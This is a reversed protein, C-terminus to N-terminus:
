QKCKRQIPFRFLAGKANGVM